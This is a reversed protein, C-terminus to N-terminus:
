MFTYQREKSNKIIEVIEDIDDTIKYVKADAPKIAKKEKLMKVRIFENLPGWYEKGYLIIPRKEIKGNQILANITFFEDLTGYGGPFFIYAQSSTSMMTKRSFFYFFGIGKTIWKNAQQEFPLQINLGVSEANAEKAGRNAAEMIGPGGGTVVTYGAQGLKNALERAKQYYYNKPDTRASGFITVPRKLESLFEFGEIFETLIRFVRWTINHKFDFNELHQDDEHRTRKRKLKPM